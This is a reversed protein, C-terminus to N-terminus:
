GQRFPQQQQTGVKIGEEAVITRFAHLFGHYHPPRPAAAAQQLGIPELQVQFRIKVVDLPGVLFRSIAGSLAGAAALMDYCHSLLNIHSTCSIQTHTHKNANNSNGADLGLRHKQKQQKQQQQQNNSSSSDQSPIHM